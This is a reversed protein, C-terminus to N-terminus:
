RRALAAAERRSVDSQRGCAACTVRRTRGFTWVPLFFVTLRTGHETIEQLTERGCFRCAVPGVISRRDVSNLGFLVFVFV